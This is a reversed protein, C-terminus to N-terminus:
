TEDNLFRRIFEEMLMDREDGFSNNVREMLEEREKEWENLEKEVTDIPSEYEKEPEKMRSVMRQPIDHNIVWLYSSFGNQRIELIGLKILENTYKIATNRSAHLQKALFAYTPQFDDTANLLLMYIKLAQPSLEKILEHSCYLVKANKPIIRYIRNNNIIVKSM